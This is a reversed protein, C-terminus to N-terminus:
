PRRPLDLFTTENAKAEVLGLGLARAQVRAAANASSLEASLAPSSLVALTAAVFRSARVTM